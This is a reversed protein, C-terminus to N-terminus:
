NKLRVMGYGDSKLKELPIFRYDRRGDLNGGKDESGNYQDTVWLGTKGDHRGYGIVVAAHQSKSNGYKGYTGDERFTAIVAGYPIKAINDDSIRKGLGWNQSEGARERGTMTKIGTVCQKQDVPNTMDSPHNWKNDEAYNNKDDGM